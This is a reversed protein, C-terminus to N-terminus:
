VDNEGKILQKAEEAMSQPVMIRYEGLGDLTFALVSPAGQSKLIAPIGSSELKSKLIEATAEGAVKCVEILKTKTLDM